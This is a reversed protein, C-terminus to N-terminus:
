QTPAAHDRATPRDTHGPLHAGIRQVDAVSAAVTMSFHNQYNKWCSCGVWVWGSGKSGLKWSKSRAVFCGGLDRNEAAAGLGGLRFLKSGSTQIKAQFLLNGHTVLHGGLHDADFDRPSLQRRHLHAQDAASNAGYHQQQQQVKVHLQAASAVTTCCSAAHKRSM